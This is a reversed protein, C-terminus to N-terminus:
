TTFDNTQCQAEPSALHLPSLFSLSQEHQHQGDRCAVRSCLLRGARHAISPLLAMIATTWNRAATERWVLPCLPMTRRSHNSRVPVAYVVQDFCAGASAATPFFLALRVRLRWPRRRRGLPPAELRSAAHWARTAARGGTRGHAQTRKSAKQAAMSVTHTKM